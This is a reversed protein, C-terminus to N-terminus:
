LQVNRIQIRFNTLMSVRGENEKGILNEVPVKVDEFTIYSTGSAWVGSCNMQKAKIGPMTKEILLLSIGNMGSDM